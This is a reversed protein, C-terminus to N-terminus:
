KKMENLIIERLEIAPSHDPAYKLASDVSTLAEALRGLIFLNVARNYWAKQKDQKYALASDLSAIADEYRGLKYLSYSRNYWAEHLDHKYELASDNSAVAEEHLDIRALANGRNYWSVHDDHKYALTSDNSSVALKFLAKSSDTNGSTSLEVAWLGYAAGCYFYAEAKSSDNQAALVAYHLHTLAESYRGLGIAVLGSDMATEAFQALWEALTRLSDRITNDEIDSAVREQIMNELSKFGSDVREELNVIGQAIPITAEEVVKQVVLNTADETLPPPPEDGLFNVSAIIVGITGVLVSIHWSWRKLWKIQDSLKKILTAIAGILVMFAIFKETSM